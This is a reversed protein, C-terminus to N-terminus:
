DPVPFCDSGLPGCTGIVFIGNEVANSDDFTSDEGFISVGVNDVLFEGTLNIVGGVSQASGGGFAGAYSGIGKQEDNEVTAAFTGDANVDTVILVLDGLDGIAGALTTERDYIAGEVKGDAFNANLFVTGTVQASANPLLVPDAGGPATLDPVDGFNLLGVYSGLYAATDTAPANYSSQQVTAGGFFKNFQGGDMVVVATIGGEQSTKVLATPNRNLSSIQLNFEDFGDTRTEVFDYQQNLDPGDASSTRVQLVSGDYSAAIINGVTVIGNSITVDSDDDDGDLDIEIVEDTPDVIVEDKDACATLFTAAVAATIFKNM